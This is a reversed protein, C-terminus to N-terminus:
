MVVEVLSHATAFLQHCIKLPSGGDLSAPVGTFTWNSFTRHESIIPQCSSSFDMQSNFSDMGQVEEHPCCHTLSEGRNPKRLPSSSVYILVKNESNPYFMVVVSMNIIHAYMHTHIHTHAQTHTRRITPRWQLPPGKSGM